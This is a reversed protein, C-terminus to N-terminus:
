PFVLPQQLSKQAGETAVTYIFQRFAPRIVATYLAFRRNATRFAKENKFCARGPFGGRRQDLLHEGICAAVAATIKLHDYLSIDPSEGTFTSSPVNATCAKWCDCAAFDMGRKPFSM